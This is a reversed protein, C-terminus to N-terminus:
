LTLLFVGVFSIAAAFLKKVINEREKLFIMSFIVILIVSTLSIIAVQSSNTTTQLAIYFAIASLAYCVCYLCSKVFTKLSFMTFIKTASKPFIIATFIGPLLFAIVLFPYLEILGLLYRDNTNSFGFSIAAVLAILDGKQISVSRAKLTILAISVFILVAGLIQKPNLGEHLLITSAFVTFVGRSAFLLTYKAADTVKLAHQVAFSGLSNLLVLLILSFIMTPSFTFHLGTTFLAYIVILAAIFLQSFISFATPDTHEAKLVTRQLLTSITYLFVSLFIAVLWTM